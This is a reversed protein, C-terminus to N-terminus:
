AMRSGPCFSAQGFLIPQRKVVERCHQNVVNRPDTYGLWEAPIGGSCASGLSARRPVTPRRISPLSTHGILQTTVLVPWPLAPPPIWCRCARRHFCPGARRSLAGQRGYCSPAPAVRVGGRVSSRDDILAPAVAGRSPWHVPGPSTLLPPSRPTIPAAGSAFATQAPRPDIATRGVDVNACPLVRSGGGRIVLDVGWGM